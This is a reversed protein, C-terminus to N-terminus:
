SNFNKAVSNSKLNIDRIQKKSGGGFFITRDAVTGLSNWKLVFVRELVAEEDLVLWLSTSKTEWSRLGEEGTLEDTLNM